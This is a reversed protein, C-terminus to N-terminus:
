TSRDDRRRGERLRRKGYVNPNRAPRGSGATGREAGGCVRIRRFRGTPAAHTMRAVQGPQGKGCQLTGYPAAFREDCLADCANWFETTMSQYTVNKLMGALKGRRIRWFADGGFQFNCRMQDISYSGRGEIYVGDETDAIVEEPTLPEKGPTLSLNPIRVIPISSWHDARCCGRSRTEGIEGAVERSTGYGVLVGDRIVDWSQAAVGDDDFGQTALGHPLTNDARFNVLSSGYQLKGLLSPVAFSRGALSEEMGLVRDLETAHGVSEHITLALHAPDLVLDTTCPECQPARLHEVAQSAVRECNGLLDAALVNEWGLTRAPPAYTRTRADGDGVATATYNASTTTVDSELDSGESTLLIRRVRTLAIRGEAKSVAPTGLLRDAVELLLGVKDTLPVSFPDIACDSRFVTADVPEPVLSVRRGELGAAARAVEVAEAACQEASERTLDPTGAFGWVGNWLVRVGLGESESDEIAALRRDETRVTQQRYVGIRADAYSAGRASATDLALRALERM